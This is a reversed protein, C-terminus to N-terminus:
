PTQGSSARRYGDSEDLSERTLRTVYIRVAEDLRDITNDLRCIPAALKRDNGHLATIPRRLMTEVMEGM